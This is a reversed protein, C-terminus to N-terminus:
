HREGRFICDCHCPGLFIKSKGGLMIGIINGMAAKAMHAKRHKATGRHKSLAKEGEKLCVNSQCLRFNREM